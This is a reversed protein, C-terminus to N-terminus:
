AACTSGAGFSDAISAANAVQAPFPSVFSGNNISFRGNNKIKWGDSLDFSAELGVSKSIPNM